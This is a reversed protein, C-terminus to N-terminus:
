KQEHYKTDVAFAAVAKIRYRFYEVGQSAHEVAYFFDGMVYGHTCSTLESWGLAVQAGMKVAKTSNPDNKVRQFKGKPIVKKWTNM